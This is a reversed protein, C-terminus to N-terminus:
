GSGPASTVGVRGGQAEVIRKTLALGLGTGEHRKTMGADLQSFEIFLKGLDEEDIGVGSDEVLVRFDSESEPQARVAVRGGDPTFKLANSLYNFLVQKLRAPDTVVASVSPDVHASLEIRKRAALSRSVDVVEALLAHLDVPQPAIEMRGSEVKALDLMGNILDLLHRGSALVDTLAQQQEESVAGIKGDHMLEAFGLIANLPTRLEHSMNAVFESKLRNAAQILRNEELLARSYRKLEEAQKRDTVDVVSARCLMGAGPLRVLRIECPFAHGAKDLITYEFVPVEGGIARSIHEAIMEWSFRQDPQTSPSVELPGIRMLEDRGYGFLRLANSNAEVFRGNDVDITVIAEPAHEFQTRYRAESERLATETRRREAEVARKEQAARRESTVDRYIVVVGSLGGGVDRIPAFTGSIPRESGTRTVLLADPGLELAEGSQLVRPVAVIPARTRGDVVPLIEHLPRGGVDALAFGTTHEAQPNMRVIQGRTDTTIFGDGISRVTAELHQEGARLAEIVETEHTIDRSVSVIHVCRGGEIIPTLTVRASIRRGFYSTHEEWTSIKHERVVQHCLEHFHMPRPGAGFVVGVSLGIFRSPDERMVRVFGDNVSAVILEPVAPLAGVASPVVDIIMIADSVTAYVVALQAASPAPPQAATPRQSGDGNM